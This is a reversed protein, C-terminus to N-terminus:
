WREKTSITRIICNIGEFAYEGRLAFWDSDYDIYENVKIPDTDEENSKIHAVRNQCDIELINDGWNSNGISFSQGSLTEKITVTDATPKVIIVPNVAALGDVYGTNSTVTENKDYSTGAPITLTAKCEYTSVDIDTELPKEMIYEWYVEPYNSLELRKPIPRNFEDRDNVLLKTLERLSLTSAELDCGDIEFEIKIEKETINQRYADNTDTGDVKLYSTDTELGEPVKLDTIFAGYYALDENEIKVQIKQETIEEIYLNLQINHFNLSGTNEELTNAISLEIEWQELNTIELTNFGWLDGNGGITFGNDTDLTTDYDNVIISREHSDGKPSKLKAYLICRDSQEINGTLEIGRIARTTDTGYGEDLPLAYFVLTESTNNSDLTIEASDDALL